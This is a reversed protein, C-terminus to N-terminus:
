CLEEQSPNQSTRRVHTPTGTLLYQGAHRAPAGGGGVLLETDWQHKSPRHSQSCPVADKHLGAPMELHLSGSPARSLPCPPKSAPLMHCARQPSGPSKHLLFTNPLCRHTQTLLHSCGGPLDSSSSNQAKHSYPRPVGPIHKLKQKMEDAKHTTDAAVNVRRSQLPIGPHGKM